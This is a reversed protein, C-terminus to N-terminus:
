PKPVPAQPRSSEKPKFGPFPKQGPSVELVLAKGRSLPDWGSAMARRVDAEVTKASFSPREPIQLAGNGTRKDPFPYELILERHAEDESRVSIRLGIYGGETSRQPESILVWKLTYGDVVILGGITRKRRKKQGHM